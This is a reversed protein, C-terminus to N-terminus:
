LNDLFIFLWLGSPLLYWPHCNFVEPHTLGSRTLLHGLQVNAVYRQHHRPFRDKGEFALIPIFGSNSPSAQPSLM